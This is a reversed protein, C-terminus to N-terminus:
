DVLVHGIPSARRIHGLVPTARVVVDAGQPMATRETARWATVVDSTGDDVAVYLSYRDGELRKVLSRPLPTVEAPRRARIVVGTREVTNFMDAAGAFAAWLGLLIPVITLAAVGTALASILWDQDPFREQLSTWADGRAVDAFFRRLRLGVFVAVLGGLLAALPAVGYVPRWPYRVRVLRGEGGVASWARRHDERALPLEIRAGEALCMAAAYALRRDGVDVASAAMPAFGAAVLRGRVALWREAAEVGDATHTVDGSIAHRVVRYLLVLAGLLVAISIWRRELADVVAVETGDDRSANWALLGLVAAAAPGVLLQPTWRRSVLGSRRADDHVLGRFRRWWSGHVDVALHRAPIAQDTTFRALIHQLVLREHPLLTDGDYGGSAPRVRSVEDDTIPPLIRLWGRAALDVVTARMAAATVTADNTLLNVVAPSESREGGTTESSGIRPTARRELWSLGVHGAIVLLAAIVLMAGGPTPALLDTM